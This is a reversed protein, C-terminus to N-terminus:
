DNEFTGYSDIWDRYRELISSMKFNVSFLGLTRVGVHQNNQCDCYVFKLMFLAKKTSYCTLTNLAEKDDDSLCSEEFRMHAVLCNYSTGDELTEKKLSFECAFSKVCHHKTNDPLVVEELLDSAALKKDSEAGHAYLYGHLHPLIQNLASDTLVNGFKDRLVYQM